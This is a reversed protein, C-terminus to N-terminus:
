YIESTVIIQQWMILHYGGDIAEVFRLNLAM